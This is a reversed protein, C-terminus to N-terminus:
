ISMWNFLVSFLGDALIILFIAQVAAKTTREGVSQASGEAQFGQFCGIGAIILAFIPTKVLGIYLQKIAVEQKFRELFAQFTIGAMSKSIVMSGFVGFIDGWVVLLPLAVLLGVIKPIVLREVPSLGMTRLADLEENVKMTGLLAAFSTSTRGAIIVSSILPSFERLIAVGSLDVMYIDAGYTNLQVGLQYAVVIGILFMMVAIIPLARYGGVDIEHIMSRWQLRAPQRLDNFFNVFIEGLFAFLKITNEVFDVVVKGIQYLFSHREIVVPQAQIQTIEQMVLSLLSQFNDKLGTITIDANVQILKQQITYLLYAGATDMQTIQTADISNIVASAVCRQIWRDAYSLDGVLWSGSLSLVAANDALTISAIDSLSRTM